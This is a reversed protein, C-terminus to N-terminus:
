LEDDSTDESDGNESGTTATDYLSTYQSRTHRHFQAYQSMHHPSARRKLHCARLLYPSVDQKLRVVGNKPQRYLSFHRVFPWGSCVVDAYVALSVCAMNVFGLHVWPRQDILVQSEVSTCFFAHHLLFCFFLFLRWMMVLM